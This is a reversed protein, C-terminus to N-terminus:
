EVSVLSAGNVVMFKFNGHTCKTEIDLFLFDEIKHFLIIAFTGALNLVMVEKLNHGSFNSLTVGNLLDQLSELKEILVVSALNRKTVQASNGALKSFVQTVILELGHNVLEVLITVTLDVFLFEEIDHLLGADVSSQTSL